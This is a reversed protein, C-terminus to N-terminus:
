CVLLQQNQEEAVLDADEYWGEDAQWARLHLLSIGCCELSLASAYLLNVYNAQWASFPPTVALMVSQVCALTVLVKTGWFKLSPSFGHLFEHFDKEVTMINGIAAFSAAFGFGLFINKVKGKVKKTQLMGPEDLHMGFVQPLFSPMEYGITTVTLMYM